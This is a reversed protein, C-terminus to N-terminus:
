QDQEIARENVLDEREGNTDVQASLTQKEQLVGIHVLYRELQARLKEDFKHLNLRGRSTVEVTVVPNRQKGPPTAYYLNITAALVLWRRALPNDNKFEDAILETVCEHVAGAMATFEAKLNSEPSVVTISKVQLAVFGDEAAQPVEFGLRLSSLDLAPPKIRQSAIDVGLLHRSFANALMEHYKAGGRILTRAVGTVDSYELTMHINPSGVRRQLNMGEFELRMMALDKAHVTVLQTGHARDLLHAVCVEGCGLEKQYFGKIAEVFNAMSEADRRVATRVGLDHQQAHQPNADFFETEAAQEFLDLHHVFLWFSRHIDSQCAILNVLVASNKAAVQFMAQKGREHALQTSANLGAVVRDRVASDAYAQLQGILANSTSTADTWDFEASLVLGQKELYNRLTADIPLNLLVDAYTLAPKM